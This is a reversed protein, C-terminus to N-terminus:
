WLSYNGETKSQSVMYKIAEIIEDNTCHKCGGNKPHDKGKITNEIFYGYKSCNFAEM